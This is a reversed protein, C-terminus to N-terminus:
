RVTKAKSYLEWLGQMIATPSEMELRLRAGREDEITQIYHIQAM